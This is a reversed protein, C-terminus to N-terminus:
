VAKSVRVAVLPRSRLAGLTEATTTADRARQRRGDFTARASTASGGTAQRPTLTLPRLSGGSIDGSFAGPLTPSARPLLLPEPEVPQPVRRTRAPGESPWESPARPRQPLTRVLPVNGDRSDSDSGKGDEQLPAIPVLVRARPGVSGSGPVAHRPGGPPRVLRPATAALAADHELVFERSGMGMSNVGVETAVEASRRAEAQLERARQAVAAVANLMRQRAVRQERFREVRRADRRQSDQIMIRLKVLRQKALMRSTVTAVLECKSFGRDTSPRISRPLTRLKSDARCEVNRTGVRSGVLRMLIRLREM